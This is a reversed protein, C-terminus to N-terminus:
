PSRKSMSQSFRSWRRNDPGPTKTLAQQVMAGYRVRTAADPRLIVEGAIGNVIVEQGDAIRKTADLVQSVTPIVHFAALPVEDGCEDIRM